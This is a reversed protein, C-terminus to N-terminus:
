ENSPNYTRTDIDVPRFVRVVGEKTLRAIEEPNVDINALIDATDQGISPARRPSAMPPDSRVPMKMTVTAQDSELWEIRAHMQPDDAVAACENVPVVPVDADAFIRMWDNLDRSAITETLVEDIATSGRVMYENEPVHALLDPRGTAEALRVFFKRELTMLMLARGDRTRYAQMTSRPVPPTCDGPPTPPPVVVGAEASRLEAVQEEVAYNAFAAADSQAIDLFAPRGTRRCWSLAALASTAGFLPAVLAGFYVHRSPMRPRGSEDEEIGALGAIADFGIGHSPMNRYPGTQGYGSLAVMVLNPKLETLASWTLGMKALTGPRLGEIVIDVTPILRRILDIGEPTHMDVAISRKGRNWRRHLASDNFGPRTGVLRTTDGRVPPEIKIIDAGLDALHMGLQTPSLSAIELVRVDDLFRVPDADSLHGTEPASM